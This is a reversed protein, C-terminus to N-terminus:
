SKKNVTRSIEDMKQNAWEPHTATIHDVIHNVEGCLAQIQLDWTPLAERQEFYVIGDIQDIHGKMREECIMQSAVKEATECPIGLLTGLEVFRISTYLKSASLINHETVARNLINSGDSNTAKHHPMLQRSFEQVEDPKIIRDLFMKELIPFSMLAQCREDKYLSALMRSRQPGAPALIACNLAKEIAETRESDQIESCYSLENYRQAAELFKRRFDLVQVHCVKFKIKLVNDTSQNQLLSARNIFSEAQIPDENKLHLQAIRLLRGLKHETSYHKQGTESFTASLMEAASAWEKDNEFITALHERLMVDQEEFSVVRTQIRNLTFLSIAKSAAADLEPLRHCLELLLNRSIMQSINESLMTEIFVQLAAVRGPGQLRFCQDLIAKNKDHLDKHSSNTGNWNIQSLRNKIEESM